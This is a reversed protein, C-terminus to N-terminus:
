KPQPHDGYLSMWDRHTQNFQHEIKYKKLVRMLSGFNREHFHLNDAFLVNAKM